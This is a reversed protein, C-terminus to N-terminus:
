RSDGRRPRTQRAETVRDDRAAWSAAAELRTRAGLKVMASRLVIAATTPAIGLRDGIEDERLGAGVLELVEGERLTLGDRRDVNAGREQADGAV